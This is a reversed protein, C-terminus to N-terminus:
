VTTSSTTANIASERHYNTHNGPLPPLHCKIAKIRQEFKFLQVLSISALVDFTNAM